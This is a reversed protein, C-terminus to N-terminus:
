TDGTRDAMKKLPTDLRPEGNSGNWDAGYEFLVEFVENAAHTDVVLHLPTNGRETKANVYAGSELLLEIVRINAALGEKSVALHLLTNEDFDAANINAEYALYM